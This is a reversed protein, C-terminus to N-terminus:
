RRPHAMMRLRVTDEARETREQTTLQLTALRSPAITQTTPNTIMVARGAVASAATTYKM